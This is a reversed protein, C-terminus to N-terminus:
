PTPLFLFFSKLHPSLRSPSSPRVAPLFYTLITNIFFLDLLLFLDVFQEGRREGEEESRKRCVGIGDM